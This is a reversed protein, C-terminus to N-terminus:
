NYNKLWSFYYRSGCNTNKPQPSNFEDGGGGAGRGLRNGVREFHSKITIKFFFFIKRM